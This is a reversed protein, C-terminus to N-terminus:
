WLLGRSCGLRKCGASRNREGKRVPGGQAERSDEEVRGIDELFVLVQLTKRHRSKAGGEAAREKMYDMVQFDKQPGKASYVPRLWEEVTLWRM